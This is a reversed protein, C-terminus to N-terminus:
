SPEGASPTVPVLVGPTPLDRAPEACARCQQGCRQGGTMAEDCRWGASAQVGDATLWRADPGPKKFSGSWGEASGCDCLLCAHSLAKPNRTYRLCFSCQAYAGADHQWTAPISPQVVTAVGPADADWAKADEVQSETLHDFQGIGLARRCALGVVSSAGQHHWLLWLLAGRLQHKENEAQVRLRNMSDVETPNM